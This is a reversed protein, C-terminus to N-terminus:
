AMKARLKKIQALSFGTLTVILDNDMGVKIMTMAVEEKGEVKGEIKGEAKGAAHAKIRIREGVTVIDRRWSEHLCRAATDAVVEPELDDRTDFIYKVLHQFLTKAEEGSMHGRLGNMIEELPFQPDYVHKMAKLMMWAHPEEHIKPDVRSLDIIPFATTVLPQELKIPGAFLDQIRLPGEWSGKGHYLVMPFVVPIHKARPYRKSWWHWLCVLYQLVRLAMLPSPTSQHEVLLYIFGKKKRKYRVQFVKDSYLHRMDPNVFHTKIEKIQDLDIHERVQEILHDRFLARYTPPYEMMTHFYSDHPNGGKDPSVNEGLEQQESM